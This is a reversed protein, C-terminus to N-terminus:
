SLVSQLALNSKEILKMILNEKSGGAANLTNRDGDYRFPPASLPDFLDRGALHDVHLKHYDGWHWKNMDNGLEETLQNITDKM